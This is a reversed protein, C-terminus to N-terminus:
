ASRKERLGQRAPQPGRYPVAMASESPQDDAVEYPPNGKLLHVLRPEPVITGSLPDSGQRNTKLANEYVDLLALNSTPADREFQGSAHRSLDDVRPLRQLTERRFNVITEVSESFSEFSVKVTVGLARAFKRLTNITWSSRDIDEHQSIQEQPIGSVQAFETQTKYGRQERLVKLQTAIHMNLFDNYYAYAYDEDELFEQVLKARLDSM